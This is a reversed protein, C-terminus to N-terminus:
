MGAVKGGLFNAGAGDSYTASYLVWSRDPHKPPSFIIKGRGLFQLLFDLDEEM